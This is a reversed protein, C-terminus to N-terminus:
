KKDRAADLALEAWSLLMAEDDIVEAPVEYYSRVYVWGNKTLYSFPDAKYELYANLNIDNVRFYLSSKMIMCFQKGNCKLSTGGFFRGLSVEGLPSLVDLIYESYESKSSM